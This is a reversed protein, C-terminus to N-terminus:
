LNLKEVAAKLVRVANELDKKLIKDKGDEEAKASIGIATWDVGKGSTLFSSGFFNEDLVATRADIKQSAAVDELDKRFNVSAVATSDKAIIVAGDTKKDCFGDVSIAHEFSNDSLFAKTGKGGIRKQASFLLAFDGDTELVAQYVTLLGVKNKLGYGLYCDETEDLEPKLIGFDGVSIESTDLAIYLDSIKADDSKESDCKVEGFSGNRFIVNKGMLDKTKLGGFVSFCLKGSSNDTIMIGATDMGCEILLKPNEGKKAIVNGLSDICIEDFKDKLSEILIRRVEDEYGSPSFANLIKEIM